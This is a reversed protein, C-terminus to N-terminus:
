KPGIKVDLGYRKGAELADKPKLRTKDLPQLRQLLHREAPKAEPQPMAPPPAAAAMESIVSAGESEASFIPKASLVRVADRAGMRETLRGSWRPLNVMNLSLDIAADRIRKKLPNLFNSLVAQHIFTKTSWLMAETGFMKSAAVDVPLNHSLENVFSWIWDTSEAPASVALVAHAQAMALLTEAEAAVKSWDARGVGCLVLLDATMPAASKMLRARAQLGDPFFLIDSCDGQVVRTTARIWPPGSERRAALAKRLKAAGPGPVVALSLPWKWEVTHVPSTVSVHWVQGELAQACEGIREAESLKVRVRDVSIAEVTWPKELM